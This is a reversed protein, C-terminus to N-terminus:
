KRLFDIMYIPFYHIKGVKKFNGNYFVYAKNFNYNAVDLINNLALHRTYNKGSKIEIPLVNSRNEVVFDLEGYKKNSYYYIDKFGHAHLSMAVANEVISGFNINIDGNLIKNKAEFDFLQYTLIGVDSSFLKLLNRQENIKLPIMPEVTAFVPIAVGANTLWSFSLSTDDGRKIGSIDSLKFRKNQSNLETVLLNYIEKIKLKENLSAYKAIDKLTYDYIDKHAAEVSKLSNQDIFNSVAKPMGGILLYLNYLYTIREHIFEDIVEDNEFCYKIREIINENVGNAWLFEEFDLPYMTIDTCYGMPHSKIDYLEIGLLSGSYVFRYDTNTLDKLLTVPDITIKHKDDNRRLSYIEQIEDLFIVSGKQLNVGKVNSLRLLFDDKDRAQSLSYAASPNELLDVYSFCDFKEKLFKKLIYTKGVQRSGYVLLATKNKYWSELDSVIKRKLFM